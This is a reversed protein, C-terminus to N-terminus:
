RPEALLRRFRDMDVKTGPCTKHPDPAGFLVVERHGIFHGWPVDFRFQLAWCLDFLSDYQAMTFDRINGDGALGIGISHQNFGKAHSGALTLPRGLEVLGNMRIWFHYGIDNWGNGTRHWARIAAASTDNNVGDGETHIVVFETDRDGAGRAIAATVEAPLSM